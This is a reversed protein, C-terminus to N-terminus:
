SGERGQHESDEKDPPRTMCGRRDIPRPCFGWWGRYSQPEELCTWPSKIVKSASATEGM